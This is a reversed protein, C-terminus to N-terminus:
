LVSLRHLMMMYRIVAEDNKGEEILAIIDTIEQYMGELIEDRNEAKGISEVIGPAERYYTTILEEGYPQAKIYTDRFRRLTELEYCDDPLGKYTCCATTLFCGGSSSGSRGERWHNCSDDDWYYSGFWSCYGKTHNGEFKFYECTGCTYDKVYDAM